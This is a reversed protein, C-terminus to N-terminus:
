CGKESVISDEQFPTDPKHTKATFFVTLYQKASASVRTLLCSLNNDKCIAKVQSRLSGSLKKKKKKVKVFDKNLDIEVKTGFTSGDLIVFVATKHTEVLKIDYQSLEKVVPPFM